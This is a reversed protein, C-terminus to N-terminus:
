ADFRIENNSVVLHPDQRSPPIFRWSEEGDELSEFVIWCAGLDIWLDNIESLGVRKVKFGKLSDFTERFSRGDSQDDFVQVKRSGDRWALKIPCFSHLVYEARMDHKTKRQFLPTNMLQRGIPFTSLDIDDVYEVWEGFGIEYLDDWFPIKWSFLVPQGVLKQLYAVARGHLNDLSNDTKRTSM